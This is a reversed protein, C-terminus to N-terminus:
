HEAGVKWTGELPLGAEYMSWDWRSFASCDICCIDDACITDAEAMCWFDRMWGCGAAAAPMCWGGTVYPPLKQCGAMWAIGCSHTCSVECSIICGNLSRRNCHCGPPSFFTDSYGVTVRDAWKISCLRPNGSRDNCAITVRVATVTVASWQFIAKVEFQGWYVAIGDSLIVGKVLQVLIM